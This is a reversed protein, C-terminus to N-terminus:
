LLIKLFSSQMCAFRSKICHLCAEPGLPGTRIRNCELSAKYEETRRWLERVRDSVPVETSMAGATDSSAHAQPTRDGNLELELHKLDAARAQM